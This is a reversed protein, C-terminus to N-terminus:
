MKLTKRLGKKGTKTTTNKKYQEVLNSVYSFGRITVWLETLQLLLKDSTDSELFCILSWCSAVQESSFIKAIANSKNICRTNGNLYSRLVMEMGRFLLFAEDSVRFLGGRDIRTIWEKTYSLFDDVEVDDCEHMSDLVQVYSDQDDCKSKIIKNKVSKVVFGCSYRISNEEEATLEDVEDNSEKDSVMDHLLSELLIRILHQRIIATNKDDIELAVMCNNWEKVFAESLSFCHFEKWMAATKSAISGHVAQNSITAVLQQVSVMLYTALAKICPDLKKRHVINRIEDLKLFVQRCNASKGRYEPLSHLKDLSKCLLDVADGGEIWLSEDGPDFRNIDISQLESEENPQGDSAEAHEVM